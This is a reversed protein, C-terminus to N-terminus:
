LFPTPSCHFHLEPALRLNATIGRGRMWERVQDINMPTTGAEDVSNFTLFLIQKVSPLSLISGLGSEVHRTNCEVLEITHLKPFLEIQTNIDSLDYGSGPGGTGLRELFPLYAAVSSIPITYFGQTRLTVIRSRQLFQRFTSVLEDRRSEPVYSCIRLTIGRAGPTLITCLWRTFELNTELELNQLEPLKIPPLSFEYTPLELSFISLKRITPNANLFSVLQSASPSAVGHLRTLQLEVLNRCCIVDWDFAVGELYLSHLPELLEGLVEPPLSGNTLIHIDDLQGYLALKRVRGHRRILLISLIEELFGPNRYTIALSYLRTAYSSLLPALQESVVEQDCEDGYKGLRVSLLAKASREYCMNLYEPNQLSDNTFVLDLFSWLMPTSIAIQRWNVCVSSLRLPYNTASYTDDGISAAYRSAQVLAVFIRSLIESPLRDIPAAM